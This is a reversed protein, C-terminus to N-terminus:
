LGNWVRDMKYSGFKRVSGSLFTTAFQVTRVVFLAQKSSQILIEWDKTDLKRWSGQIRRNRLHLLNGGGEKKELLCCVLRELRMLDSGLYESLDRPATIKDM